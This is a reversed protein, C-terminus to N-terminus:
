QLGLQLGSQMGCQLGLQLGSQMGFQLGLQLGSRRQYLALDFSLTRAHPKLAILSVLLLLASIMGIYETGTGRPGAACSSKAM